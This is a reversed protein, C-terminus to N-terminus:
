SKLDTKLIIGGTINAAGGEKIKKWPQFTFGCPNTPARQAPFEERARRLDTSRRHQTRNPRADSRLVYSCCRRWAETRTVHIPYNGFFKSKNTWEEISTSYGDSPRSCGSDQLRSSSKVSSHDTGFRLTAMPWSSPTRRKGNPVMQATKKQCDPTLQILTVSAASM